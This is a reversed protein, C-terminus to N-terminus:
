PVRGTPYRKDVYAAMREFREALDATESRAEPLRMRRALDRMQAAVERYYAATPLGRLEKVAEGSALASMELANIRHISKSASLCGWAEYVKALNGPVDNIHAWWEQEFREREKEPLRSIAREILHRTIWPLWEKLDDGILRATIPILIAGILGLIFIVTSWILGM